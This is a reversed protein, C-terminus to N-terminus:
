ESLTIEPPAEPAHNQPDPTGHLFGLLFPMAALTHSEDADTPQKPIDSIQWSSFAQVNVGWM